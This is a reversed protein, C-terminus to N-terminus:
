KSIIKHYINLLTEELKKQNHEELAIKKAANSIKKAFEDSSFITRICEALMFPENFDFLLGAERDPMMDAIGGVYSAICPTGVLMSEALSNPSNEIASPLVMCNVKELIKVIQSATLAGTFEINDTLNNKFIKKRIMKAYGTIKIKQYLSDMYFPNSGSIYVKIDPYDRKVIILADLFVHLGKIPYMGQHIFITHRDIKNIDWNGNYFEPRLLRPCKYYRLKPNLTYIAAKDWNTRGEVYHVSNFIKKEIKIQKKFKFRDGFVGSLRILDRLTYNRMIESKTLGAYYHRYYFTIIGQLSVIIPASIDNIKNILEFSLSYETGYIHIVDPQFDSLIFDWANSANVGGGRFFTKKGGPLFYFIINDSEFKLTKKKQQYGVTVIALKINKRNRLRQAMSRVWPCAYEAKRHVIESMEPFTINVVWLIKM